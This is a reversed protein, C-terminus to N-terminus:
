GELEALREEFGKGLATAANQYMELAASVEGHERELAVRRAWMEVDKPAAATADKLIKRKRMRTLSADDEEGQEGDGEAELALHFLEMPANLLHLTLTAPAEGRKRKTGKGKAKSKKKAVAADYVTRM